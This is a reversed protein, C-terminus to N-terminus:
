RYCPGLCVHPLICLLPRLSELALKVHGAPVEGGRGEGGRGGGGEGGQTQPICFNM